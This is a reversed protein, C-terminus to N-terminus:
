ATNSSSTNRYRADRRTAINDNGIVDLDTVRGFDPQRWFM